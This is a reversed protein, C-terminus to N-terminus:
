TPLFTLERYKGPQLMGLKVPGIQFRKLRAVELGLAECMKRIQRNRGEYITMGLVVRGDQKELIRVDCESTMRGDIEVGTCLKIIQEETVAPRVTM